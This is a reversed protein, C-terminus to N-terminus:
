PKQEKAVEAMRALQGSLWVAQEPTLTLTMADGVDVKVFGTSTASVVTSLNERTVSDPRYLYTQDSM